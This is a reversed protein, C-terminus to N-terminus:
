DKHVTIVYSDPEGSKIRLDYEHFRSQKITDLFLKHDKMNYRQPFRRLWPHQLENYSMLHMPFVDEIIYTGSQKLLPFLNEFTLRNAEPWHAGDDLIFDFEIDNGWKSRIDNALDISTSDCKMWEVRNHSLINISSPEIREFTDLGYITGNPFFEVFAKTSAGKFVGIELFKLEKQQSGKKMIDYYLQDYKHKSSKDCEHLDFLTHLYNRPQKIQYNISKM